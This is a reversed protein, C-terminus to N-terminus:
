QGAVEVEVTHHFFVRRVGASSRPVRASSSGGVSFVSWIMFPYFLLRLEVTSLSLSSNINSIRIGDWKSDFEQIDDIRLGVTFLDAYNEVSDNAGLSGSNITSWTLLRDEAFSVTRRKPKRDRWVSEGKSSPIISSKTWHQLLGRMLYKLIRCQFVVLLHRLDWNM